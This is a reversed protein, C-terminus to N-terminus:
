GGFEFFGVGSYTRGTGVVEVESAVVGTKLQKEHRRKRLSM